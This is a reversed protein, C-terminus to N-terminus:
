QKKRDARSIASVIAYPSSKGSHDLWAGLWWRRDREKEMGEGGM